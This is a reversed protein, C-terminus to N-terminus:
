YSKILISNLKLSGILPEFLRSYAGCTLMIKLKVIWDVRREKEIANLPLKYLSPQINGYKKIEKKRNCELTFTYYLPLM